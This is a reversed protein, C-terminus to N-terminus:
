LGLWYSAKILLTHSAPGRLASLVDRPLALREDRSFTERDSGWVVFLTSGPRYEWRLVATSRLSTQRFDPRGFSLSPRGDRTATYRRAADDYEIDGAQFTHFRDATQPARPADLEKFASYEADGAFPEAHLQVSLESSLVYAVRAVFSATQQRVAALVYREGDTSRSTTVYHWENNWQQLRPGLSAELADSPRFQLTALANVRRSGGDDQREAFVSGRASLSKRRDTHAAIFFRAQAPAILAPGGRLADVALGGFERQVWMNAGRHSQLVLSGDVDVLTMRREGGFTWESMVFSTLAASRLIRGGRYKEYGGSAVARVRDVSNLFGADNIEFGPSFATLAANWRWPGGGIRAANVRLAHGLMRTRTSDFTLHAADPRQFRRASSRQLSTIADSSGFVASGSLSGSVEHNDGIRRRADLTAAYAAAPLLQLRPDTGIARNVATALLGVANRGREGNRQARLVSFSTLPEVVAAGSEGDSTVFRAREAATVAGLAGISWARGARGTLKAAGLISTATPYDAYTVGDPLAAQPARGIRRSYFLNPGGARFLEAGEVFFPRREQVFSEYATLNIEAPDAEVQGFDPRIAAALTLTGTVGYKLDAGASGHLANTSHFPNAADGPARTIGAVSYPQLEVRRPASLGALGSLAGFHSVIGAADPPTAAWHSTEARRAIVREVNFAWRSAGTRFRLQSLPIRLEATWGGGDISTAAQWVANWGADRAGDESILVDRQVGRPNVGFVYATRGDDMSGVKVHIWDSHVTEDRRALRAVISDPADDWMRLAVYLAADDYLVRVETRLTAPSGPQPSHQVFSDAVDALQWIVDDLRGYIQPPSATRAAALVPRGTPRDAGPMPAVPAAQELLAAHAAPLLALAQSPFPLAGVALLARPNAFCVVLAACAAHAAHAAHAALALHAARSAPVASFGSM